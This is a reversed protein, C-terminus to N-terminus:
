QKEDVGSFGYKSFIERGVSSAAFKAFSAALTPQKSTKLTAIRVGTFGLDFIGYTASTVTDVGPQPLFKPPLEISELKDPYLAIRANWTIAADLSGMAVALALEDGKARTVVNKEIEAKLGAKTLIIENMFAVNSYPKLALGVRLGPQTLDHLGKINKPNGKPVVIAPTLSAVLYTKNALGKTVLVEPYPDHYLYLDGKQTQEIKVALAGGSGVDFLVKTGTKQKYRKAIEEMPPLMYSGVYCLLSPTEKKPCGFFLCLIGIFIGAQKMM